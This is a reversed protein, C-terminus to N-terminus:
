RRASRGARMPAIPVVIVTEDAFAAACDPCAGGALGDLRCGCAACSADFPAGCEPCTTGTLGLLVYRCGPCTMSRRPPWVRQIVWLVVLGPFVTSAWFMATIGILDGWIRQGVIMWGVAFALWLATGEIAFTPAAGRYAIRRLGLVLVLCAVSLLVVAALAEFHIGGRVLPRIARAAAGVGLAFLLVILLRIWQRRRSLIKLPVPAPM